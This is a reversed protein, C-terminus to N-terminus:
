NKNMREGGGKGAGVGRKRTEEECKLAGMQNRTVYIGIGKEWM